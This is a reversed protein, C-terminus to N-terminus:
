WGVAPSINVTAFHQSGVGGSVVWARATLSISGDPATPLTSRVRERLGVRREAPLSMAYGPAPGQGGLFPAWYDDFDRFVTPVEIARTTVGVLGAADFLAQLADPACIPFRAAEDLAAAAPDLATAANWFYRMLEMRGAYDWVYLAVTSGPRGARVMEAVMRAPDAVFNLVLGSVVADFGGSAVPLTEADGAQFTARASTPTARAQRIFAESRDIGLVADPEANELIAQALAGTGCGVDLWRRHPPVGLARVFERAVLRSWRGVYAEYAAGVAWADLASPDTPM